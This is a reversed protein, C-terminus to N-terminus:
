DKRKGTCSRTLVYHTVDQTPGIATTTLLWCFQLRANHPDYDIAVCSLNSVCAAQCASLSFINKQPQGDFGHMNDMRNWCVTCLFLYMPNSSSFYVSLCHQCTCCVVDNIVMSIGRCYFDM